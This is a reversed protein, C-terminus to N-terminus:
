GARRDVVLCASSIPYILIVAVYIFLTATKRCGGKYITQGIINRQHPIRIRTVFNYSVNTPDYCVRM